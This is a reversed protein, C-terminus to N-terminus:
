EGTTEARATVRGGISKEIKKSVKEGLRTSLRDITRGGLKLFRTPMLTMIKQFPIEGATRMM